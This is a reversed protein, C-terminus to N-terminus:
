SFARLGLVLPPPFLVCLGPPFLVPGPATVGGEALARFSSFYLLLCFFIGFCGSPFLACVCAHVCACRPLFSLADVLKRDSAIPFHPDQPHVLAGRCVHRWYGVWLFWSLAAPPSPRRHLGATSM